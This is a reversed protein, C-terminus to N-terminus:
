HALEQIRTTTPFGDNKKTALTDGIPTFSLVSDPLPGM